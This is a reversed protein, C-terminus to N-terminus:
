VNLYKFNYSKAICEFTNDRFFFLYHKLNDVNKLNKNSVIKDAPFDNKWNSDILKYFEGWKIDDPSYRYQKLYFGHDNPSGLRYMYCDSFVLVGKQGEKIHPYIYHNLYFELYLEKDKIHIAPEPSNPDANWNDNLKIYQM